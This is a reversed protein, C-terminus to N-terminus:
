IQTAGFNGIKEAPRESTCRKGSYFLRLAYLRRPTRIAQKIKLCDVHNRWQQM